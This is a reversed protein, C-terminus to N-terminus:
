EKGPEEKLADFIDSFRSKKRFAEEWIREFEEDTGAYRNIFGARAYIKIKEIAPADESPPADLPALGVLERFVEASDAQRQPDQKFRGFFDKRAHKKDTM